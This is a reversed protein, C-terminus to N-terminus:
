ARKKHLRGVSVYSGEGSESRHLAEKLLESEEVISLIKSLFQEHSLGADASLRFQINAFIEVCESAPDKCEAKPEFPDAHVQREVEHKRAVESADDLAKKAEIEASEGEREKQERELRAADDLAKKAEIRAKEEAKKEILEIRGKETEILEASKETFLEYPNIYDSACSFDLVPDIGAKLCQNEFEIKRSSLTEQAVRESAVIENIRDKSKKSLKGGKTTSAVRTSAEYFDISTFFSPDISEKARSIALADTLLNFVVVRRAEKQEQFKELNADAILALRDSKEYFSDQFEKLSSSRLRFMELAFSRVGKAYKKFSKSDEIARAEDDVGYVVSEASTIAADLANLHEANSFLDKPMEKPLEILELLKTDTM